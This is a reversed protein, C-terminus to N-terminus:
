HITDGSTLMFRSGPSGGEDRDFVVSAVVSKINQLDAQQFGSMMIKEIVVELDMDDVVGIERLLMLYGQGDASIVMKEAEHFIRHSFKIQSKDGLFINEGMSIRDIVWSLATSIESETYGYDALENLNIDGLQKNDRMERIIYVIIEVIKEQMFKDKAGAPVGPLLCNSTNM